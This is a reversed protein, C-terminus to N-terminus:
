SMVKSFDYKGDCAVQLICRSCQDDYARTGALYNHLNVEEKTVFVMNRSLKGLDVGVYSELGPLYCCPLNVVQMRIRDQWADIVERVVAAADEPKPVLHASARGFPTLFQFNMRDVGMAALRAVLDPLHRFNQTSLTTNIGFDLGPPKLAVANRIGAMTEQFSGEAGTIAEHVEATPGHVSVLLSHMGSELLATAFDRYALRRGNSTVHIPSYGLKVAYAIIDLLDARLTPEGGDLDLQRVGEERYRDLVKKVHDIPLHEQLRNGVACFSCHNNCHYTVNIIVKATASNQARRRLLDVVLELQTKEVGAPIWTANHQMRDGPAGGSALRGRGELPASDRTGSQQAPAMHTAAKRTEPAGRQMGALPTAYQFLPHAGYDDLLRRAQSLTEALEDATEGPLGVMWHIFLPLKAEKCWAAAQEIHAVEVSKSVVDRMLRKSASEASVTVRDCLSTLKGVMDRTLLDARLGNPFELRLRAGSVRDLIEPFDKRVNPSDDLVVLTSVHPALAQVTQGAHELSVTRYDAYPNTCFTCNFPCGRSFFVPFARPALGYQAAKPNKAAQELFAAHADWDVLSPDPPWALDLVDKSAREGAVHYSAGPDSILKPVTVECELTVMRDLEPYWERLLAVDPEIRHMGGCYLEAGIILSGPRMERLHRVLYSFGESRGRELLFPSMHVVAADFDANELREILAPFPVGFLEGGRRQRYVGAGPMQFADLLHTESGSRRLVAALSVAGVSTFWPYDIYDGSVEEPPHIVVVKPAVAM